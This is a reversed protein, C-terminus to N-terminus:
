SFTVIMSSNLVSVVILSKVSFLFQLLTLDDLVDRRQKIILKKMVFTGIM